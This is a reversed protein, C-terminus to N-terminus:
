CHVFCSFDNHRAKAGLIDLVVEQFWGKIVGRLSGDITVGLGVVFGVPSRPDAPMGMMKMVENIKAEKDEVLSKMIRTLPWIFVM